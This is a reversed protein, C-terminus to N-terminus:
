IAPAQNASTQVPQVAFASAQAQARAAQEGTMQQRLFQARQASPEDGHRAAILYWTLAAEQSQAVGLGREYMVGMDFQSDRYGLEAARRFWSVGLEPNKALGLGEVYAIALNHMAKVNGQAASASFWYAAQAADSDLMLTGLVYQALPQGQRAAALSWRQADQGKGSQLSALALLTQARGDGSDALARIRSAGTPAAQHIAAPRAFAEDRGMATAICLFEISVLVSMAAAVSWALWRSYARRKPPKPQQAAARQAAQRATQLFDAMEKESIPQSIPEPGAIEEVHALIAPALREPQPVPAEPIKPEPAEVIQPQPAEVPKLAQAEAILAFQLAADQEFKEQRKELSALAREFVRLRRELWADTAPLAPTDGGAVPRPSQPTAEPAAPTAAELISGLVKVDEGTLAALLEEKHAFCRQFQARSVGTQRLLTRLSFGLNTCLLERAAALLTDRALADEPTTVRTPTESTSDVSADQLKHQEVDVGVSGM